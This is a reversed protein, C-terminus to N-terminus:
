ECEGCRVLPHDCASPRTTIKRACVGVKGSAPNRVLVTRSLQAVRFRTRTRVRLCDPPQSMHAFRRMVLLNGGRVADIHGLHRRLVFASELAGDSPGREAVGD